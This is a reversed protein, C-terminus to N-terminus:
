SLKNFWLRVQVKVTSGNLDVISGDEDRLQFDLQQLNRPSPYTIECLPDEKCEWVNVQGFAVTVPIVAAVDQYDGKEDVQRTPALAKSVLYVQRLGQLSPVRPATVTLGPEITTYDFGLLTWLSNVSTGSQLVSNDVVLDRRHVDNNTVNFKNSLEDFSFVLNCVASLTHNTNLYSLMQTVNYFGPSLLKHEYGYNTKTDFNAVIWGNNSDTNPPGIVNYATNTFVVSTVTARVVQQCTTGLNSIWNTPSYGAKGKTLADASNSRLLKSYVYGKEIGSM